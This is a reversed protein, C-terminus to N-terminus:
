SLHLTLFGGCLCRLASIGCTCVKVVFARDPSISLRPRWCLVYLPMSPGTCICLGLCSLCYFTICCNTNRDVLLLYHGLVLCRCCVDLFVIYVVSDIGTFLNSILSLLKKWLVSWRYTPQTLSSSRRVYFFCYNAGTWGRGWGNCRACCGLM